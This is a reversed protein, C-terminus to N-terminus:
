KIAPISGSIYFSSIEALLQKNEESIELDIQEALFLLNHSKPAETKHKRLFLAKLYKEIAQQCMFVTYVYRGSKQMSKATKFDYNSSDIWFDVKEELTKM